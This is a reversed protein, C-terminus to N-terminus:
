AVLYWARRSCMTPYSTLGPGPGPQRPSSTHGWGVVWQRGVAWGRLSWPCAVRQRQGKHRTQMVYLQSNQSYHFWMEIGVARVRSASIVRHGKLFSFGAKEILLVGTVGSTCQGVGPLVSALSWALGRDGASLTREPSFVRRQLPSGAAGRGEPGTSLIHMSDRVRVLCLSPASSGQGGRHGLHHGM